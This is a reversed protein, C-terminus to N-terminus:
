PLMPLRYAVSASPGARLQSPRALPRLRSCSRHLRATQQTIPTEPVYKKLGLEKALELLDKKLQTRLWNNTAPSSM